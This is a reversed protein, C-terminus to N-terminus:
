EQFCASNIQQSQPPKAEEFEFGSRGIKMTLQCEFLAKRLKSPIVTSWQRPSRITEHGNSRASSQTPHSLGLSNTVHRLPTPDQQEPSCINHEEAAAEVFAQPTTAKM